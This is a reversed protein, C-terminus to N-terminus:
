MLRVLVYVGLLEKPLTVALSGDACREAKLPRPGDFDPSVAVASKGEPVVFTIDKEIPPFAPARGTAKVVYNSIEQAALVSSDDVDPAIAVTACTKEGVPVGGLAGGTALVVM